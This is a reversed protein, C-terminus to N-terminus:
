LCIGTYVCSTSTGGMSILTIPVKNTQKVNTFYTNVDALDIGDFELLGVSQGAGTLTTGGYYAKRM